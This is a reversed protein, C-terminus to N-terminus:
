KDPNSQVNMRDTFQIVFKSAVGYKCPSGGTKKVSINGIDDTLCEGLPLLSFGSAWECRVANKYVKSSCDGM